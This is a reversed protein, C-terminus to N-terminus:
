EVSSLLVKCKELIPDYCVRDGRRTEKTPIEQNKYTWNNRQTFKNYNEMIDNSTFNTQTNTIIQDALLTTIILNKNKLEEFITQIVDMQRRKSDEVGSVVPSLFKILPKDSLKHKGKTTNMYAAAKQDVQINIGGMVGVIRIIDDKDFVCYRPVRINLVREVFTSVFVPGGYLYAQDMTRINQAFQEILLESPIRVIHIESNEFQVSVLYFVQSPGCFVFNLPMLRAAYNVKERSLQSFRESVSIDPILKSVQFPRGDTYINVSQGTIMNLAEGGGTREVLLLGDMLNVTIKDSQADVLFDAGNGGVTLVVDPTIIRFMESKKGYAIKYWCAGYKQFVETVNRDSEIAGFKNFTLQSFNDIDVHSFSGLSIEAQSSAQTQVRDGPNLTLGKTEPVTQGDSSIVNVEGYYFELRSLLTDEIKVPNDLTGVQMPGNPDIQSTLNIASLDSTSRIGAVKLIEFNTTGEPVVYLGPKRVNGEVTVKIPRAKPFLGVPHIYEILGLCQWFIGACLLIYVTFSVLRFKKRKSM